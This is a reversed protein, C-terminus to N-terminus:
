SEPFCLQESRPPVVKAIAAPCFTHLGRAGCSSIGRGLCMTPPDPLVSVCPVSTPPGRVGTRAQLSGGERLPTGGGM